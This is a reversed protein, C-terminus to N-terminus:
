RLKELVAPFIQYEKILLGIEVAEVMVVVHWERFEEM